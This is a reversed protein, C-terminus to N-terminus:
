LVGSCNEWWDALRREEVLRGQSLLERADGAVPFQNEYEEPLRGSRFLEIWRRWHWGINPHLEPNKAFYEIGREIKEQFAEYNRMPLHLIELSSMEKLEETAGVM